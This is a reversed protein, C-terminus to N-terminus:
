VNTQLVTVQKRQKQKENNLSDHEHGIGTKQDDYNGGISKIFVTQDIMKPIGAINASQTKNSVNVNGTNTINNNKSVAHCFNNIRNNTEIYNLKKQKLGLSFGFPGFGVNDMQGLNPPMSFIDTKSTIDSDNCNNTVTKSRDNNTIMKTQIPNKRRKENTKKTKSKKRSMLFQLEDNLIDGITYNYLYLLRNKENLMFEIIQDITWGKPFHQRIHKWAVKRNCLCDCVFQTEDNSNEKDPTSNNTDVNIKISKIFCCKVIGSKNTSAVNQM